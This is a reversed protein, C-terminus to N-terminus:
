GSLETPAEDECEKRLIRALIELHKAIYEREGPRYRYCRALRRFELWSVEYIGTLGYPEVGLEVTLGYGRLVYRYTRLAQIRRRLARETEIIQMTKSIQM